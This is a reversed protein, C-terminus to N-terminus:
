QKTPHVNKNYLNLLLFDLKQVEEQLIYTQVYEDSPTLVASVQGDTVAIKEGNEVRKLIGEPDKTYEEITITKM